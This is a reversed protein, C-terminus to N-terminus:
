FPIENEKSQLADNIMKADDTSDDSILEDPTEYHNLALEHVKYRLDKNEKEIYVFNEYEGDDKRRSPYSVFLGGDGKILKCSKIVFGEDTEIDFYARIKSWEGKSMRSIKM